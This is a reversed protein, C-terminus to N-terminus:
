RPDKMMPPPYAEPPMGSPMGPPPGQEGAPRAPAARLALESIQGEKTLVVRDAHVEQVEHGSPLRDGARALAIEKSNPSLSLVARNGQGADMYTGLLQIALLPEPAPEGHGPAANVPKTPAAGFLHRSLVLQGQDASAPTPQTTALGPAPTFLSWFASALVWSLTACAVLQLVRPTRAAMSSWATATHAKANWRIWKDTTM